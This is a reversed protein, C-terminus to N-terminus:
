PTAGNLATLERRMNERAQDGYTTEFVNTRFLRPWTLAKTLFASRGARYADDPAWAYEQRVNRAYTDYIEPKAGLIAIDADLFYDGDGASGGEWHNRTMLIIRCTEEIKAPDVGLQTLHTRALDASREENDRAQPDYIADHWWIALHPPTASYIDTTHAWMLRKLAILHDLGHYRRHRESHRRVIEQWIVEAVPGEAHIDSEWEERLRKEASPYPLKTWSKLLATFSLAIEDIQQYDHDWKWVPADAQRTQNEARVFCLPNGMCDSAFPVYGEPLGLYTEPTIPAISDLPIFESADSLGSADDAIAGLLEIDVSPTGHERVADIYAQPFLFGIEAECSEIEAATSPTTEYKPHVWKRVFGDFASQTM